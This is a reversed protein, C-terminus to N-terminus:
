AHRGVDRSGSNIRLHYRRARAHRFANDTAAEAAVPYAVYRLRRSSWYHRNFAAVRHMSLRKALVASQKHTENIRRGHRPISIARSSLLRLLTVNEDLNVISVDKLFVNMQPYYRLFLSSPPFLLLVLSICFAYYRLARINVAARGNFFSVFPNNAIMWRSRTKRRIWFRSFAM